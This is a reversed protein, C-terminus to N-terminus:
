EGENLILRILEDLAELTILNNNPSEKIFKRYKEYADMIYRKYTMILIFERRNLRKMEIERKSRKKWYEILCDKLIQKEQSLHM